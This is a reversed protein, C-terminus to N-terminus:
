QSYALLYLAKFAAFLNFLRNEEQLARAIVLDGHVVKIQPFTRHFALIFAFNM